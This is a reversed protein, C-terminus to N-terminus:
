EGREIHEVMARGADTIEAEGTAISALGERVLWAITHSNFVTTRNSAVWGWVQTHRMPGQNLLVLAERQLPSLRIEDRTM